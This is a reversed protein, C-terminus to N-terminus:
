RVVSRESPSRSLSRRRTLVSTMSLCAATFTLYVASAAYWESYESGIHALPSVQYLLDTRLIDIGAAAATMVLPSALLAGDVVRRPLDSVAPGGLLVGAGLLVAAGLSVAAADLTDRFAAGCVGGLAGLALCGAGLAMHANLLHDFGGPVAGGLFGLLFSVGVFVLVLAALRRGFMLTTSARRALAVGLLPACVTAVAATALLAEAFVGGLVARPVASWDRLGVALWLVTLCVVIPLGTVAPWWAKSM